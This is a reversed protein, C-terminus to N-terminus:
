RAGVSAALFFATLSLYYVLDRLDIVGRAVSQFRSGTGLSRMLAATRDPFLGALADVGLGYLGLCVVLALIFALIQNETTASVFQGVALYAAGLLLAGLYGGIVPGWDLDGLSAVTLPLVLTLGLGVALLSWSALVKGAVLEHDGAPMTLLVELTGQKREEAWLRMTLAPVLLVLLLPIADFLGRLDARGRAFFTNINFITFLAAGVFVLLFVYAIPSNFYSRLERMAVARVRKM